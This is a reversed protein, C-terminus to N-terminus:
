PHRVMYAAQAGPPYELKYRVAFGHRQWFRQSGQVAVLACPLTMQVALEVAANVLRAAVGRSRHGPRVVLDHVYLCSPAEPLIITADHLPVVETLTWPFCFLYAALGGEDFCGQAGDPFLSLKRAFAEESELLVSPHASRQVELVEPLDTAVLARCNM